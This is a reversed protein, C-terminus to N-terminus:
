SRSTSVDKKLSVEKQLELLRSGNRSIEELQSIIKTLLLALVAIGTVAYGQSSTPNLIGHVIGLFFFTIGLSSRM